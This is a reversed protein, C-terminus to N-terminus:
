ALLIIMFDMQGDVYNHQVTYNCELGLNNTGVSPNGKNNELYELGIIMTLM